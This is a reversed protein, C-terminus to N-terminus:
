FNVNVGCNFSKTLPYNFGSNFNGELKEPDFPKVFPDTWTALNFGNAYIRIGQIGISKYINPSITYGLELSKLRVFSADKRWVSSEKYMSGVDSNFRSAPWKGPIWESKTDFSDQQHWRDYFYAPTNGRFALVEAYVESFRVTYIAAGQFLINLDFGKYSANLSTGFNIRPNKRGGANLDDNTGNAGTFIPLQDLDNVVGDNNIDAYKYDGPLERINAQNGNQIPYIAIENQNQFQGLYTYGWAVDNYRDATGNRWRDYSNTFAGREVHKNMTRAYNFNGSVGYNFAGARNKYSVTFDTGDTRNSNLNEQPLSAGFTNPLSLSKTAPLGEQDRRYIDFEITLKNNWLGIDLGIDSTKAVAWTLGPNVIAPSQAGATLSGNNFEYTGGGSLNFGPIWQFARFGENSAVQGYSGRLKLDSIVPVYKKIFNEESIRWGASAIPFFGWRSDPPYAHTGMYRFALEMLYKDKFGYNFRGLISQNSTQSENGSNTQNNASARDIQDNTYFDYLRRLSANRAWEQRQEFVATAGVSHKAAIVTKYDAQAQLTLRNFNTFSNSISAAGVRQQSVVYDNNTFTYENFPKFVDKGQYSNADYAALGKLSLGKVFPLDWTLAMTTQLNNNVQETYGTIDRNSLTLPNQNNPAVVAPYDPNNNAFPGQTPLTVRTGKFINFFNEGPISRKDYRSSLLLEGKLNKALETTINSRLNFRKYGMDDSKLLGEEDFYGLGFFYQTKDNGGKASLNHQQQIATNKMTVGYWDTSEYGPVGDIYKQMEEKALFPAGTGLLAADNRMQIWESANAMRPVDTPKTFGVVSNYNFSAKGKSGKKTTVIVVGNAAGFGYIAASADKLFSISEIDDPNIRQFESSGDRIVGDIVYLPTGFGRISIMNNFTGPEGGLQRIQLGAVKGQLKQALSVSTTTQIEKNTINTVSGTLTEKRQTGYGVVIVENLAKSDIKLTININTRNGVKVEQTLYGVYSFVLIENEDPVSISYEGNSNTTNGITKGKVGISVGLLKEGNEDAVTGKIIIDAIISKEINPLVNEDHNLINEKTEFGLAKSRVLIIQREGVTEFTINRPTLVKRLVFEVKENKIEVTLPEDNAILDKKYSFLVNTQKEISKLLTKISGKELSISVKKQLVDQAKAPVAFTNIAFVGAIIVQILNIKMFLLLKQKIYNKTMTKFTKKLFIFLEHRDNTPQLYRPSLHQRM